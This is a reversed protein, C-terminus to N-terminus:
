GRDGRPIQVGDADTMDGARQWPWPADVWNWRERSAGATTIPGFNAEYEAVAANLADQTRHFFDLAQKNSPAADLFLEAETKAFSLAQIKELLAEKNMKDM